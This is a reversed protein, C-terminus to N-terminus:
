AVAGEEVDPQGEGGISSAWADLKEMVLDYTDSVLNEVEDPLEGMMERAQEFGQNIADRITSVFESAPGEYSSYFATAFDVIRQSTNEANWYEPVDAVPRDSESKGAAQTESDAGTLKAVMKKQMEVLEDAMKKVLEGWQEESLSDDRVALMGRHYEVHNLNLTVTDGDKSEYQLTMSDSVLSESRMLLERSPGQRQIGQGGRNIGNGCVTSSHGQKKMSCADYGMMQPQTAQVATMTFGGSSFTDGNDYRKKRSVQLFVKPKEGPYSVNRRFESIRDCRDGGSDALDRIDPELSDSSM